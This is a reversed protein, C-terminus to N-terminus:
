DSRQYAAIVGKDVKHGLAAEKVEFPMNREEEVWTRFTALFGHSRYPLEKRIMLQSMAAYSLPNGTPSTSIQDKAGTEQAIAIVYRAEHRLPVRRQQSAKTTSAPIHWVDGGIEKFSAQRVESTRTITLILFRM